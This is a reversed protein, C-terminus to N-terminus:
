EEEDEEDEEDEEIMQSADMKACEKWAEEDSEDANNNTQIFEIPLDITSSIYEGRELIDEDGEEYYWQIVLKKTHLTVHLLKKLISVLITTSFSNLYEFAITVYTTEAPHRIYTNIWNIIQEPIENESGFLGRGRIKITGEPSFIFEPTKDTHLIHIEELIM